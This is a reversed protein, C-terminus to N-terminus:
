SRDWTTNSSSYTYCAGTNATLSTVGNNITQSTTQAQLTLTTVTQTSFICARQGDPPNAALGVTLTSLGGAPNLILYSQQNAFNLTAGTLPASKGYTGAPYNNTLGPMNVDGTQPSFLVIAQAILASFIIAAAAAGLRKLM